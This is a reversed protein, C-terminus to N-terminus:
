HTFYFIPKTLSVSEFSSRAPSLRFMEIRRTLQPVSPTILWASPVPHLGTDGRSSSGFSMNLDSPLPGRDIPTTPQAPGWTTRVGSIESTYQSYMRGDNPAWCQGTNVLASLYPPRQANRYKEANILVLRDQFYVETESCHQGASWMVKIPSVVM